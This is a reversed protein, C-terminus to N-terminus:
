ISGHYSPNFDEMIFWLTKWKRTSFLWFVIREEGIRKHTFADDLRTARKTYAGKYRKIILKTPIPPLLHEYDHYKKEVVLISSSKHELVFSALCLIGRDSFISYIHTSHLWVATRASLSLFIIFKSNSFVCKVVANYPKYRVNSIKCGQITSAVM